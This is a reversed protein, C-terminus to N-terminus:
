PAEAARGPWCAPATDKLQPWRSGAEVSAVREHLGLKGLREVGLLDPSADGVLHELLEREGAEHDPGAAAQDQEDQERGVVGPRRGPWARSSWAAGGPPGPRPARGAARRRAPPVGGALRSPRRM